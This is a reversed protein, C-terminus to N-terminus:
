YNYLTLALLSFFTCFSMLDTQNWLPVFNHFNLSAAPKTVWARNGNLRLRKRKFPFRAEHQRSDRSFLTKRTQTHSQRDTQRDTQIDTWVIFGFLSFGFDGFEAFLYDMMIGRGTLLDFTLTVPDFICFAISHGAHTICEMSYEAEVPRHWAVSLAM